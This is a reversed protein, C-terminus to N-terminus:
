INKSVGEMNFLEHIKGKKILGWTNTTQLLQIYRNYLQIKWVVEDAIRDM